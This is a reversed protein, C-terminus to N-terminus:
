HVVISSAQWAASGVVDKIAEARYRSGAQALTAVGASFLDV